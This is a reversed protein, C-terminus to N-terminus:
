LFASASVGAACVSVETPATTFMIDFSTSFANTAPWFATTKMMAATSITMATTSM